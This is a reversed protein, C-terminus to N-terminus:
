EEETKDKWSRMRDNFRQMMGERLKEAKAKQEDTLIAFIQSKVHQRAVILQETLDGQNKAIETVAADDFNGKLAALKEHNTRMQGRIPQITSRNADLIEKVKSKQEDTLDLSRLAMMIGREGHMGLDRFRHHAARQAIAFIGGVVLVAAVVIIAISIKKM